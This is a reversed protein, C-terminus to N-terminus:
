KAGQARMWPSPAFPIEPQGPYRIYNQCRPCKQPRRVRKPWIHDCHSCRFRTAADIQEDTAEEPAVASSGDSTDFREEPRVDLPGLARRVLGLQRATTEEGGATSNGATRMHEFLDLTRNLEDEAWRLPRGFARERERDIVEIVRALEANTLRARHLSLYRVRAERACEALTYDEGKEGGVAAVWWAIGTVECEIAGALEEAVDIIGSLHETREYQPIAALRAQEAILTRLRM